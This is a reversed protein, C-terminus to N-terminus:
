MLLCAKSKTNISSVAIAAVKAANVKGQAKIVESTRHPLSKESAAFSNCLDGDSVASGLKMPILSTLVSKKRPNKSANSSASAPARNEGSKCPAATKTGETVFNTSEIVNPAVEGVGDSLITIREGVRHKPCLWLNKGSPLHCRNHFYLCPFHLVCLHWSYPEM